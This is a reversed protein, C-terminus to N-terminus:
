YNKQNNSEYFQKKFKNFSNGFDAKTLGRRPKYYDTFKMRYIALPLYLIDILLEWIM